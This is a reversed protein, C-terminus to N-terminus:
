LTVEALAGLNADNDIHITLGLRERLEAAADVGAWGTLISSEHLSGHAHDVPGALAVGVGLVQERRVGAEDLVQEVLRAATDLAGEADNDVDARQSAEALVTRSLDSVATLVRDHDFDVGVAAGASPDLALLVPPRGQAARVPEEAKE